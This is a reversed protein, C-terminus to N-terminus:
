KKRFCIQTYRDLACSRASHLTEFGLSEFIERLAGPGTGSKGADIMALGGPKLVRRIETALVRTADLDFHCGVAGSSNVLDLYGDEIPQNERWCFTNLVSQTRFKVRALRGHEDLFERKRALAVFEPNFELGIIESGSAAYYALVQTSQGIGCCLDVIKVPVNPLNGNLNRPITRWNAWNQRANIGKFEDTSMRRYADCAEGNHRRRFSTNKRMRMLTETLAQHVFIMLLSRGCQIRAIQGIAQESIKLVPSRRDILPIKPRTTEARRIRERSSFTGPKQSTQAWNQYMDHEAPQM